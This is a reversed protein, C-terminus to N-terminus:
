LIGHSEGNEKVGEFGLEGFHLISTFCASDRCKALNLFAKNQTKVKAFVLSLCALLDKRILM